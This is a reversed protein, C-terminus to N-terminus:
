GAARDHVLAVAAPVHRVRGCATYIMVRRLLVSAGSGDVGSTMLELGLFARGRMGLRQGALVILVGAYMTVGLGGLQFLALTIFEGFHHSFTEETDFRTLGTVSVASVSTFLADLFPM